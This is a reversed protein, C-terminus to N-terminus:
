FFYFTRDGFILESCPDLREPHDKKVEKGNIYTGNLSGLDRIYYCGDEIFIEAHRRSVAKSRVMGDCAESKGILFPFINLIMRDGMGERDDSLFHLSKNRGKQFAIREKEAVSRDEAPHYLGTKLRRVKYDRNVCLAPILILVAGTLATFIIVARSNADIFRSIQYPKYILVSLVGTMLLLLCLFCIVYVKKPVEKEDTGEEDSVPEGRRDYNRRRETDKLSNSGASRFSIEISEDRRKDEDTKERIRPERDYAKEVINLDAKSSGRSRENLGEGTDAGSNYGKKKELFIETSYNGAYVRKYFGYAAEVAEDDRHDTHQIIYDALDRMSASIEEKYGPFFIFDVKKELMDMYILEPDIVLGSTDLLYERLSRHVVSLGKFLALLEDSNMEKKLYLESLSQKGSINFALSSTGGRNQIDFKLLGEIDNECLMSIEYTYQETGELGLYLVRGSLEDSVEKLLLLKCGM